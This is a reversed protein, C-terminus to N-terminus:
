MEKINIHEALRYIYDAININMTTCKYLVCKSISHFKHSISRKKVKLKKHIRWMAWILTRADRDFQAIACNRAIPSYLSRHIPAPGGATTAM